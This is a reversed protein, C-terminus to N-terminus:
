NGCFKHMLSGRCFSSFCNVSAQHAQALWPEFGDKDQPVTEGLSLVLSQLIYAPKGDANGMNISIALNGVPRNLSYALNLGLASPRDGMDNREFLESDVEIKTHLKEALFGIPSEADMAIANIYRVECKLFNLPATGTPYLEVIAEVLKLILGKFQKWSYGKGDNVTVIGPGVQILPWGNKEKRLRHRVVYPTTDPHAQVSPLDEIIPFEKKMREYVRGYMMPYAADRFRGTQQDGQLEWRLEFIAEALPPSLLPPIESKKSSESKFIAM